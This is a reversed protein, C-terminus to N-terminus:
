WIRNKVAWMRAPDRGFLNKKFDMTLKADVRRAGLQKMKKQRRMEPTDTNGICDDTDCGMMIQGTRHNRAKPKLYKKCHYCRHVKSLDKVGKKDLYSFDFGGRRKAIRARDKPSPIRLPEGIKRGHFRYKQLSM